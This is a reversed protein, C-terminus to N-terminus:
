LSGSLKDWLNTIRTFVGRENDDLQLQAAAGGALAQTFAKQLVQASVPGFGPVDLLKALVEELTKYKTVAATLDALMQPDFTEVRDRHRASLKVDVAKDVPRAVQQALLAANETRVPEVTKASGGVSYTSAITVERTLKPIPQLATNLVSAEAHIEADVSQKEDGTPKFAGIDRITVTYRVWYSMDNVWEKVSGEIAAHHRANAQATIPFLNVSRGPGGLNDNLLHGRIYRQDADRYLVPNVPLLGMLKEQGTPGSGQPHDPGLPWAAMEVGVEGAGHLDTTRFAIKTIKGQQLEGPIGTGSLAEDPKFSFEPNIKGVVQFGKEFDGEYGLKTLRFREKIKPFYNDLRDSDTAAKSALEVAKAAADLDQQEQQATRPLAAPPEELTDLTVPGPYRLKDSGPVKEPPVTDPLSGDPAAAKDVAASRAPENPPTQGPVGAGPQDAGPLGAGSPAAGPPPAPHQPRPTAPQPPQETAEAQAATEPPVPATRQQRLAGQWEAKNQLAERAGSTAPGDKPMAGQILAEADIESANLEIEPPEPHGFRYNLKAQLALDPGLPMVHEALKWEDEWVTVWLAEIEAWANLGLKLRAGAALTATGEIGWDGDRYTLEPVVSVAGYIGATGVAEIGGTLSGLLVDLGLGAGFAVYGEVFAPIYLEGSISFSPDAADAGITYSGEVSINRFVGPGVGARVGARVRIVAVLIAWLPINRSSSFLEKDLRKEPFLELPETVEIRGSVDVAGEPLITATLTGQLRPAIQATVSGQGGLQLTGQETQAVTVTISGSLKGDDASYALTTEGSWRDEAYRVTIAGNLGPLLGTDVPIQAEGSIAGDRYDVRVATGSLGPVTLNVDAGFSFVGEDSWAARFTGTGAPGLDIAASGSVDLTGDVYTATISPRRVPLGRPFAAAGLTVSGSLRGDRIRIRGAATDLGPIRFSFEGNGELQCARDVAADAVTISGLGAYSASLGTLGGSPQGNAYGLRVTGGVLTLGPVPTRLAGVEITADANLNGAEDASVTASVEDLLPPTIRLSGEAAFRGQETFRFAVTGAGLRPYVLEVNGDGTLRGHTLALNASGTASASRRLARPLLDVGEVRAAGTLSGDEALALTLVPNGLAPLALSRRVSGHVAARGDRDVRVTFQGDALHPVALTGDLALTQNRWQATTLSVGPLPQPVNELSVPKGTLFEAGLRLGPGLRAAFGAGDPLLGFTSALTGTDNAPEPGRAAPAPPAPAATRTEPARGAEARGTEPV